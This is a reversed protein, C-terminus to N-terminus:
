LAERRGAVLSAIEPKLLDHRGTEAVAKSLNALADPDGPDFGLAAQFTELASVADGSQWRVVGLDNLARSNTGDLRLAAEFIREAERYDGRSFIEEGEDLLEAVRREGAGYGPAHKTNLLDAPVGCADFPCVVSKPLASLSAPSEYINPKRTKMKRFCVAPDLDGNANISVMTTGASCVMGKLRNLGHAIMENPAFEKRVTRSGGEDLFDAYMSRFESGGYYKKLWDLDEESYRGDPMAGFNERIIVVDAKLRDSRCESLRAYISKVDEMRLPHACLKVVTDFGRGSLFLAKELFADREAHDFHYSANFTFLEKKRLLREAIGEFFRLPLGLNTQTTIHGRSGLRDSLHDLFEAYGPHITPEGGALNVRIRSNPLGAVADAAAKMKELPPFFGKANDHATCYSCTYNCRRTVIWDVNVIDAALFDKSGCRVIKTAAVGEPAQPAGAARVIGRSRELFERLLREVPADVIDPYNTLMDDALRGHRCEGDAAIERFALVFHDVAANRFFEAYAPMGIRRYYRHMWARTAGGHYIQRVRGLSSWISSAHKRYVADAIGPMYKGRGLCGLLSTMFTDGNLVNNLEQPVDRLVNRFCITLTLIPLGRILEDESFDRKLDDSLKSEKVVRGESDVIKANHYCAVYEPNAELFDVQKQLKEPDTWYDDGECPAVYRGRAHPLTLNLFPKRGKSYQNEAQFIPRIRGPHREAYERIIRPTGDTSADDHILIEVPFGTRQALFGEICDRLYKEHNYTICCVSVM